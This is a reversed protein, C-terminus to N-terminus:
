WNHKKMKEAMYLSKDIIKDVLNFYTMCWSKKIVLVLFPSLISM